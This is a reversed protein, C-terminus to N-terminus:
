AKPSARRAFAMEQLVVGASVFVTVCLDASLRLLRTPGLLEESQQLPFAAAQFVVFAVTGLVAGVVGGLIAHVTRNWGGAGLGFALGGAAGIATWIGGHTLLPLLLSPEAPDIGRLYYPVLARSLGVGAAGGLLCGAVAATMAAPLSRRALGGALGLGLGLSAGLVGYAIATNRSDAESKERRLATFSYPDSEAKHSPAYYGLFREGVLWSTLGALLAVTLVGMWCNAVGLRRVTSTSATPITEGRVPPAEGASGPEPSLSPDGASM